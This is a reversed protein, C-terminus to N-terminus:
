APGRGRRAMTAPSRSGCVRAAKRLSRQWFSPSSMASASVPVQRSSCRNTKCCASARHSNSVAWRLSHSAWIACVKETMLGRKSGVGSVDGTGGRRTMFRMRMALIGRLDVGLRMEQADSPHIEPGHAAAAIGERRGHQGGHASSHALPRRVVM